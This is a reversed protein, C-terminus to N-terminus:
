GLRKELAERLPADGISPVDVLDLIGRYEIAPQFVGDPLIAIIEAFTRHTVASIGKLTKISAQQPGRRHPPYGCGPEVSFVRDFVFRLNVDGAWGYGKNLALSICNGANIQTYLWADLPDLILGCFVGPYQMVSNLYGQGTGCGGVVYEVRRLNLLLASIFGTHTYQLEPQGGCRTMGVNLIEHGRGALAAMIDANRDAASTENVVAIRM